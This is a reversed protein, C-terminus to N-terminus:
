TRSRGRFVAGDGGESAYESRLWAALDGVDEGAQGGAAAGDAEQAGAGHGGHDGAAGDAGEVTREIVRGGDGGRERRNASEEGRGREGLSTRM